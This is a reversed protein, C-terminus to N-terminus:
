TAPVPIPITPTVTLTTTIFTLIAWALLIVAGGIISYLLITKAKGSRDENGAATAFMIGGYIIGGVCIIGAIWVFWNFATLALSQITTATIATDTGKLQEPPIIGATAVTLKYSSLFIASILILFFFGYITKKM